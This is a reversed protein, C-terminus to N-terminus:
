HKLNVLSSGTLLPCATHGTRGKAESPTARTQSMKAKMEGKKAKTESEKGKM